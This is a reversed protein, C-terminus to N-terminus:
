TKQHNKKASRKLTSKVRLIRRKRRRSRALNRENIIDTAGLLDRAIFDPKIKWGRMHRRDERGSLVFITACGANYGALIDSETDGVFFAKSASRITKNMTELAKRISGIQPKRCECAIPFINSLEFLKV